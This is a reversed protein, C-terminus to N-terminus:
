TEVAVSRAGTPGSERGIRIATITFRLEPFTERWRELWARIAEKGRTEGSASVEGPYIFVADDAWDELVADFDGRQLAEAGDRIRRTLMTHCGLLPLTCILIGLLGALRTPEGGLAGGVRRAASRPRRPPPPAESSTSM